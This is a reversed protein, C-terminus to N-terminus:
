YDTKELDPFVYIRGKGGMWHVIGERQVHLIGTESGFKALKGLRKLANNRVESVTLSGAKEDNEFLYFRDPLHVSMWVGAPTKLRAIDTIELTRLDLRAVHDGRKGYLAETRPQDAIREEYAPICSFSDRITRVLEFSRDGDRFISLGDSTTVVLLDNVYIISRWRDGPVGAITELRGDEWLRLLPGGLNFSSFLWFRRSDRIGTGILRPFGSGRGFDGAWPISRVAPAGAEDADLINLTVAKPSERVGLFVVKNGYTWLPGPLPKVATPDCLIRVEAKASDLILIRDEVDRFVFRGDDLPVPRAALYSTGIRRIGSRSHIRIATKGFEVVKRDPTIFTAFEIREPRQLLPLAFTALLGAAVAIGLAEFYRRKYAGSPRADYKPFAFLVAVGFPLAALFIPVLSPELVPGFSGAPMGDWFLKLGFPIEVGQIRVAAFFLVDRLPFTLWALFGSILCLVIFNEVLPALSFSVTFLVLSYLIIALTGMRVNGAAGPKAWWELIFAAATWLGSLVALRPAALRWLLSLRSYPLALAYELARQGRERSLVSAGLFLAWFLLGAQFVILLMAPYSKESVGPLAIIVAPLVLVAALFWGTQKLVDVLERKFM